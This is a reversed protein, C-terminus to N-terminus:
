NVLVLLTKASQKILVCGQFLAGFILYVYTFAFVAFICFVIIHAIAESPSRRAFLKNKM